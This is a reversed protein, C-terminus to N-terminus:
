SIVHDPDQNSANSDENFILESLRTLAGKNQWQEGHILTVKLLVLDPNEIGGPVWKAFDNHWLDSIESRNKTIQTAGSVSTFTDNGDHRFTLNIKDNETLEKVVESDATTFFFVKGLDNVAVTQMPRSRLHGGEDVTVAM